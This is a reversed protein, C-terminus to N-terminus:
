PDPVRVGLLNSFGPTGVTAIWTAYNSPLGSSIFRIPYGKSKDGKRWQVVDHVFDDPLMSKWCYGANSKLVEAARPVLHLTKTEDHAQVWAAVQFTHSDDSEGTVEDLTKVLEDCFSSFSEAESVDLAYKRLWTSVWSNTGSPGIRAGGAISVGMHLRSIPLIKNFGVLNIQDGLERYTLASDAGLVIGEPTVATLLLTM